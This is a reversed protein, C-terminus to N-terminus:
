LSFIYPSVTALREFVSHRVATALLKKSRIVKINHRNFSFRDSIIKCIDHTDTSLVSNYIVLHRNLAKHQILIAYPTQSLIRKIDTIFLFLFGRKETNNLNM